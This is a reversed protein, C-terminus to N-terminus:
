SVPTRRYTLSHLSHVKNVAPHSLVQEQCIRRGCEFLAALLFLHPHQSATLFAGGVVFAIMSANLSVLLRQQTDAEKIGKMVRLMRGNATLNMGIIMLLFIIGPVGLEGLIVFYTSHATQWPIETPGVGEPRYETGYKVAFHGAGVGTLPHDMAMRIGAKWAEIRGQASGDMEDGTKTMTDMREFFQPPATAIIGMLIVAIAIGGAVKKESKAWLYLGTATLALIGGRSQTAVIVSTLILAVGAYLVRTRFKKSEIMMFICLPIVINVSLAFDNGDGLFSGSAIYHRQGDGSFMEPTLVGVALHVLILVGFIGKLKELNYIEKRLFLYMITYSVVNTAMDLVFQKVDCTFISVCLLFLLFGFWKANSSRLVESYTIGGSNSAVSAVLVSLPVISNLHLVNLAPFYSTPRVYELVFFLLIGYYIM